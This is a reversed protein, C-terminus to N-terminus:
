GLDRLDVHNGWGLADDLARQWRSWQDPWAIDPQDWERVANRCALVVKDKDKSNIARTLAAKQKRFMANAKTYNIPVRVAERADARAHATALIESAETM